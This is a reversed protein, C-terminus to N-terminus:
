LSFIEFRYFLKTFSVESLYVLDHVFAIFLYIERQFHAWYLINLSLPFFGINDHLFMGQILDFFTKSICKEIAAGSTVLCCDSEHCRKFVLRIQVKEGFEKTVLQFQPLM